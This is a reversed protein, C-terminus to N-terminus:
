CLSGHYYNIPSVKNYGYINQNMKFKSNDFLQIICSTLILFQCSFRFILGLSNSWTTFTFGLMIGDYEYLKYQIYSRFNFM